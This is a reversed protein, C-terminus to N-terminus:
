DRLPELNLTVCLFQIIVGFILRIELKMGASWMCFICMKYAFVCVMDFAEFAAAKMEM